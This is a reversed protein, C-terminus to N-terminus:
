RRRRDHGPRDQRAAKHLSPEAVVPVTCRPSRLPLSSGASTKFPAGGSQLGVKEHTNFFASRPATTKDLCVRKIHRRDRRLRSTGAGTKRAPQIM